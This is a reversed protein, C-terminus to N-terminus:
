EKITEAAGQVQSLLMAKELMDELQSTSMKPYLGPLKRRIDKFNKSSNVLDFVPKLAQKAVAQLEVNDGSLRDALADVLQQGADKSPAAFQPAPASAAAPTVIEIDDDDFDYRKTFYIKTLKVQGSDMLNKDRESRDKDVDEEEYLKFHPREAGLSPNLEHIWGILTDIVEEVLKSDDDIIDDRVDLMASENGLRGPTSDAAAGHGLIVKSIETDHYKAFREFLDSSGSGGNAELLEVSADDPFVAVADRVMSHLAKLLERREKHQAGRPVKGIAHPIGFKELFVAWFKLGGRKFTVPWFCLSYQAEGYPNNYQAEYQALLFKYQEVEVGNPRDKTKLLLQNEAGFGFWEPPKGVVDAPVLLNGERQWIVELPQYGYGWGDLIDRIIRRLSLTNVINEIVEAARSSANRQEIQWLRRRVGAKRSKACASVHADRKLEHLVEIRAGTKRLVPDPNPLINYIDAFFSDRTAAEATLASARPAAFEIYEGRSNTFLKGM